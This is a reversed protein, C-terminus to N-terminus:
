RRCRIRGVCAFGAGFYVGSRTRLHANFGVLIGATGDCRHCCRHERRTPGAVCAAGPDVVLVRFPFLSVERAPDEMRRWLRMIFPHFCRLMPGGYGERKQAWYRFVALLQEDSAGGAETEEEEEEEEEGSSRGRRSARQKGKGKWGKAKSATERARTGDSGAADATADEQPSSLSAAVCSRLLPLAFAETLTVPGRTRMIRAQHEGDDSDSDDEQAYGAQKKRRRNSGGGGGKGHGNAHGGSSSGNGMSIGGGGSDDDEPIGAAFNLVADGEKIFQDVREAADEHEEKLRLSAEVLVMTQFYVSAARHPSVYTFLTPADTTHCM